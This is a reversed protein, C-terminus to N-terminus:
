QTNKASRIVFFFCHYTTSMDVFFCVNLTLINSYCPLTSFHTHALGMTKCNDNYYRSFNNHLFNMRCITLMCNFGYFLLLWHLTQHKQTNRGHTFMSLLLVFTFHQQRALPQISYQDVTKKFFSGIVNLQIHQFYFIVCISHHIM